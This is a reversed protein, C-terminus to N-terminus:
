PLDALGCHDRFALVGPDTTRLGAASVLEVGALAKGDLEVAALEVPWPRRRFAHLSLSDDVAADMGLTLTMTEGGTDLGRDFTEELRQRWGEDVGDLASAWGVAAVLLHEDEWAPSALLRPESLIARAGWEPSLPGPPTAVALHFPALAGLPNLRCAEILADRSWPAGSALGAEGAVLWLPAVGVADAAAQRARGAAEADAATSAEMELWALRARYLPLAPDLDVARRLHRIQEGPGASVTAQDYAVQALDMPLVLVAVVAALAISPV